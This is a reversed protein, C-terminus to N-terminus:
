ISVWGFSYIEKFNLRPFFTKGIALALNRLNM